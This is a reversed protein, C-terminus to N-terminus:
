HMKFSRNHRVRVADPRKAANPVPEWIPDVDPGDLDGAGDWGWCWVHEPGPVFAIEESEEEVFLRDHPGFWSRDQPDSRPNDPLGGM